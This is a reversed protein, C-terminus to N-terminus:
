CGTGSAPFGGGGGATRAQLTGDLTRYTLLYTFPQKCQPCWPEEKHLAWHLICHAPHSPMLLHAAAQPSFKGGVAEM